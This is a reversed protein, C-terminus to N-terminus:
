GSVEPSRQLADTTSTAGHVGAVQRSIARWVGTMPPAPRVTFSADSRRCSRRPLGVNVEMLDGEDGGDDLWSRARSLAPVTCTCSGCAQGVALDSLLSM